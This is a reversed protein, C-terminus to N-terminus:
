IIVALSKSHILVNWADDLEKNPEGKYVSQAELSGNFRVEEYEIVGADPELLPAQFTILECPSLRILYLSVYLLVLDSGRV